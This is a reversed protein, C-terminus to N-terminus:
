VGPAESASIPRFYGIICSPDRVAIQIHSKSRIFSGFFASQGEQFVGRVSQFKDGPTDLELTEITWNVVACDLYRLLNDGDSQGLPLNEPMPRTSLKYISDMWRYGRDLLGTFHVDLLDFCNGLQILAGVVAPKKIKRLRKQQEAWEMARAPGHEWFYIGKGLWDYDNESPKLHGGNELVDRAVPADCGHYAIILRQYAAHNM